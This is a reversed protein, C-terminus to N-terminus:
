RLSEESCTSEQKLYKYVSCLQLEQIGQGIVIDEVWNLNKLCEEEDMEPCYYNLVNWCLRSKPSLSTSSSSLEKSLVDICKRLLPIKEERINKDCLSPLVNDIIVKVIIASLVQNKNKM